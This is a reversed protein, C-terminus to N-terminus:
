ADSAAAQRNCARSAERCVRGIGGNQHIGTHNQVPLSVVLSRLLIEQSGQVRARLNRGLGVLIQTILRESPTIKLAGLGVILPRHPQVRSETVVHKEAEAGDRRRRQGM